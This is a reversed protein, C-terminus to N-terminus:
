RGKWPERGKRIPPHKRPDLHLDGDGCYPSDCEFSMGDEFPGHVHRPAVSRDPNTVFTKDDLSMTMMRVTVAASAPVADVVYILRATGAAQVNM